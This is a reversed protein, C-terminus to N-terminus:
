VEGKELFKIIEDYINESATKGNIKGFYQQVFQARQEKKYDNGNIVVDQIFNEIDEKLENTPTYFNEYLIEGFENLNTRSSEIVTHFLPKDFATYKAMFSCCDMIMADSTAFSDVINGGNYYQGNEIQNWKEYYEDTLQRGWKKCIQSHLDPHPRFMVQIKDQYKQAINFMFDYLALFGDNQYMHKPMENAAHPAWIIKKKIKNQKKWVNIYKYNEDFLVDLKPSGVVIVNKGSNNMYKQGMKKHFQTQRFYIDVLNNLEYNCTIEDQMVSYGYDNLFTIKNLFNTIYYQNHYHWKGFDTYFILDPNLEKLNFYKGTKYDFGKIPSYGKSVLEDYAEEQFKIQNEIGRYPDPMVLIEVEFQPNKKLLPYLYDFNWNGPRETVLCIKVKEGKKFRKIIDKRKKRNRKIINDITRKKSWLAYNNKIKIHLRHLILLNIKTINNSKRISLFPISFLYINKAGTNIIRITLIKIGFIELISEQNKM